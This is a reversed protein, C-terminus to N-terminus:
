MEIGYVVNFKLIEGFRVIFEEPNICSNEEAPEEALGFRDL